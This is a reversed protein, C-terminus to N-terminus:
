SSPLQKVNFFGTLSGTRGSIEEWKLDTFEIICVSTKSMNQFLGNTLYEAFYSIDPNHGILMLATVNEPTGNVASIYARAGSDYLNDFLEIHDWDFHLQEAFVQATQRTRFASSAVMRDVKAGKHRLFSAMRAADIYGEGTLEREFDKFMPAPSEAKAHRVLYLTKKVKYNPYCDFM